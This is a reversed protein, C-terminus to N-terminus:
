VCRSTYLLCGNLQGSSLAYHIDDFHVTVSSLEKTVHGGTALEQPAEYPNNFM